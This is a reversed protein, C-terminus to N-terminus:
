GSQLMCFRILDFLEFLAFFVFFNKRFKASEYRPFLKLSRRLIQFRAEWSHLSVGCYIQHWKSLTDRLQPHTFIAVKNNRDIYESRQARGTKKPRVVCQRTDQYYLYLFTGYLPNNERLHLNKGVLALMLRSDKVINSCLNEMNNVVM